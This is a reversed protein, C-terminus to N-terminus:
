EGAGSTTAACDNLKVKGDITLAKSQKTTIATAESVGDQYYFNTSESKANAGTAAATFAGPGKYGIDNWTSYQNKELVYAEQLQRLICPFITYEM